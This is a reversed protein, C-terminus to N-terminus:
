RECSSDLMEMDTLNIRSMGPQRTLYGKTQMKHGRHAEPKFDASLYDFSQLRFQLTGLSKLTAAKLEDPTSKDSSSTRAPETANILYYGDQRQSLCGVAQILAGSPVPQPGDKEEIQVNKLVDFTLEQKGAPFENSQLLYAIIELYTSESLSGPKNRPMSVKIFNYLSGLDYERWREMFAKGIFRASSNGADMDVRHCGACQEKYDTEGRKGQDATYVGGWVTKYSPESQPRPSRGEVDLDFALAGLALVLSVIRIFRKQLM